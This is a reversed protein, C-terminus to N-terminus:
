VVPPSASGGPTGARRRGRLAATGIVVALAAVVLGSSALPRDAGGLVGGLAAGAAIGVQFALVYWASAARSWTPADRLVGAQMAVTLASYAATWALAGAVFVAGPGAAAALGLAMLGLAVLLTAAPRRDLLGGALSTAALGSAGMVLLLVPLLRTPIGAAEALESVYTFAALHAAAILVVLACWLRVRRVSRAPRSRSGGDREEPRGGPLVARLVVAIALSLVALGLSASRWGASASVAAVAPAGLVNGAAAGLFVRATARGPRGPALWAAVAPASAWVVGHCLAAAARALVMWALSDAWAVVACSAALVLMSLPMLAPVPLRSTGATMPVISVAAVVAYVTVLSGVQGASAGLDRRMPGLAGTVFVEAILFVFLMGALAAFAWARRADTVTRGRPRSRSGDVPRSRPARTM